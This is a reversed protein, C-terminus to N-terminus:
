STSAPPRRSSRHCPRTDGSVVVSRGNFDLRCGVAGDLLHIVPFSSIRVKNREYVTATTSFPVETVEM